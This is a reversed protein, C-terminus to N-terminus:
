LLASSEKILLCFHIDRLRDGLRNRSFLPLLFKGQRCIFTAFQTAPQPCTAEQVFEFYRHAADMPGAAPTATDGVQCGSSGWIMWSFLRSGTCSLPSHRTRAESISACPFSHWNQYSCPFSLSPSASFFLYFITEPTHNGVKGVSSAPPLLLLSQQTPLDGASNAWGWHWALSSMAATGPNAAGWCRTHSPCTEHLDRTHGCWFLFPNTNCQPM